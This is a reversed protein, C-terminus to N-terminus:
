AGTYGEAYGDEYGSRYGERVYFNRFDILKTIPVQNNKWLNLIENETGPANQNMTKVWRLELEKKDQHNEEIWRTEEGLDIRLIMALLILKDEEKLNEIIDYILHITDKRTGFSRVAIVDDTGLTILGARYGAKELLDSIKTAQEQVERNDKM